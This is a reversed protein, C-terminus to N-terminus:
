TCKQTGSNSKSKAAAHEEQKPPEFSYPKIKDLLLGQKGREMVYVKDLPMALVTEKSKNARSSIYGATDSDSGGLYLVHDCNNVITDAQYKNYMSNLQSLSQIIVSVAIDRSRIVSITKDFDPIVVNTAFDDLVIRVPIELRSTPSRDAEAILSQLAQTYFLNVLMDFAHDSDSINLFVVSREHSIDPINIKNGGNFLATVGEIDFARIANSLFQTICSWTREVSTTNKFLKYQKSAYSDPHNILHEEFYNVGNNSPTQCLMIRYLENVTALNQEEPAFTELDFGVLAGLVNRASVEWFPDNKSKIPVLAATITEIDMENAKGNKNRRIYDFPNYSVTSKEPEVFDIIYTKYGLDRMTNEYKRSLSRKTDAIILSEGSTLMNPIVYGGTKGSGAPGVILDNNNLETVRTNNSVEFNQALIRTGYNNTKLNNM